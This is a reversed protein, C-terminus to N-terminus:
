ELLKDVTNEWTFKKATKLGAPNGLIRDRYCVRMCDILREEQDYGFEAWRGQGSFWKGDYADEVDEIEILMANDETCFETHASYNTAIVPKGCAMMELLEM